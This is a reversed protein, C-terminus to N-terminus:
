GIDSQCDLPRLNLDEARWCSKCMLLRESPFTPRSERRPRCRRCATSQSSISTGWDQANAADELGSVLPTDGILGHGNECHLRVLSMTFEVANRAAYKPQRCTMPWTSNSISSFRQTTEAGAFSLM